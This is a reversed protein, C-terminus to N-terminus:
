IATVYNCILRTIDACVFERLIAITQHYYETKKSVVLKRSTPCCFYHQQFDDTGILSYTALSLKEILTKAVKSNWPCLSERGYNDYSHQYSALQLLVSIESSPIITYTTKKQDNTSKLYQVYPDTCETNTLLHFFADSWTIEFHCNPFHQRANYESDPLHEGNRYFLVTIYTGNQDTDGTVEYKANRLNVWVHDCKEDWYTLPYKPWPFNKMIEGEADFLELKGNVLIYTTVKERISFVPTRSNLIQTSTYPFTACVLDGDHLPETLTENILHSLVYDKQEDPSLSTFTFYSVNVTFVRQKDPRPLPNVSYGAM